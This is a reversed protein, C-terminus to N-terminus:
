RLTFSEIKRTKTGACPSAAVFQFRPFPVCLHSVFKSCVMKHLPIVQLNRTKRRRERRPEANILSADATIIYEANSASRSLSLQCKMVVSVSDTTLKYIPQFPSVPLSSIKKPIKADFIPSAIARGLESELPMVTCRLHFKNQNSNFIHSM